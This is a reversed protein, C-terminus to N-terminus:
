SLSFISRLDMPDKPALTGSVSKCMPCRYIKDGSKNHLIIPRYIDETPVDKVELKKMEYSPYRTLLDSIDPRYKLFDKDFKDIQNQSCTNYIEIELNQGEKKAWIKLHLDLLNIHALGIEVVVCNVDVNNIFINTIDQTYFDDCSGHKHRKVADVSSLVVKIIKRAYRIVECSHILCNNKDDNEPMESYLVTKHIGYKRISDDIIKKQKKIVKDYEVPDFSLTHQEGMIIVKM